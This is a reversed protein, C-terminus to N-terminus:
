GNSLIKRRFISRDVNYRRAIERKPVGSDLLGKLHLVFEDTYKAMHHEIGSKVDILGNKYAHIINTRNDCWELNDASNDTKVGNKHNVQPLKNPNPIFAEAVLRHIKKSIYKDGIKISTQLYGKKNPCPKLLSQKGTNKYNISKINGLDSIYIRDNVQKWKEM